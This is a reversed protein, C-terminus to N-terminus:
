SAQGGVKGEGEQRGRVRGGEKIGKGGEDCGKV